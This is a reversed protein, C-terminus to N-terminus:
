GEHHFYSVDSKGVAADWDDAMALTSFLIHGQGRKTSITADFCEIIQAAEM